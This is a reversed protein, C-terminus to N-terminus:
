RGAMWKSPIPVVDPHGEHLSNAYNMAADLTDFDGPGERRSWMFGEPTQVEWIRQGCECGPLVVCSHLWVFPKTARSM